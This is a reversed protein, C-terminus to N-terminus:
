FNWMEETNSYDRADDENEGERAIKYPYGNHTWRFKPATKRAWLYDADEVVKKCNDTHTCVGNSSGSGMWAKAGGRKDVIDTDIHMHYRIKGPYFGTIEIFESAGLTNSAASIRINRPDQPMSLGDKRSYLLDAMYGNITLYRPRINEFIYGRSYDIHWNNNYGTIKGGFAYAYSYSNDSWTLGPSHLPIFSKNSSKSDENKFVDIKKYFADYISQNIEKIWEEDSLDRAGLIPGQRNGYFYDDGEKIYPRIWFFNEQTPAKEFIDGVIYTSVTSDLEDKVSSFNNYSSGLITPDDSYAHYLKYGDAGEVDNWNLSIFVESDEKGSATFGTVNPILITSIEESWATEFDAEGGPQYPTTACISYFYYGGNLPVYTQFDSVEKVFEKNGTRTRRYVHYSDAGLVEKWKLLFESTGAQEINQKDITLEPTKLVYIKRNQIARNNLSLLFYTFSTEKKEEEFDFLKNMKIAEIIGDGSSRNFEKEEFYDRSLICIDEEFYQLSANDYAQYTLVQEAASYEDIRFALYSERTEIEHLGACNDYYEVAFETELWDIFAQKPNAPAVQNLQKFNQSVVLPKAEPFIISPVIGDIIKIKQEVPESKNESLDEFVYSVIFEDGIQNATISSVPVKSAGELKYYTVSTWQYFDEKIRRKLEEDGEDFVLFNDPNIKFEEGQKLHVLESEVLEYPSDYIANPKLRVFPGLSDKVRITRYAIAVNGDSDTASYYIKYDSPLNEVTGSIHIAAVSIEGDEKDIAVCKPEAYKDIGAELVVYSGDALTGERGGVYPNLTIVPAEGVNTIFVYRQVTATYGHSNIAMYEILYVGPVSTNIHNKKKDLNAEYGEYYSTIIHNEPLEGEVEDYVEVGPDVFATDLPVSISAEGILTITPSKGSSYNLDKVIVKVELYSTLGASNTVSYILEYEGAINVNYSGKVLKTNKRLFEIDDRDDKLGIFSSVDLQQGPYIYFVSPLGDIIFIEPEVRGCSFLILTLLLIKIKKM